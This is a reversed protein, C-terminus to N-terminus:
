YGPTYEVSRPATVDRHKLTGVIITSSCLVIKENELTGRLFLNPQRRGGRNPRRLKGTSNAPRRSTKTARKRLPLKKNESGINKQVGTELKLLFTAEAGGWKLFFRGAPRFDQPQRGLGRQPKAGSGGTEGSRKQPGKGAPREQAHGCGKLGWGVGALPKGWPPDQSPRPTSDEARGAGEVGKREERRRPQVAAPARRAEARPTGRRGMPCKVVGGGGSEDRRGSSRAGARCGEGEVSTCTSRRLREGQAGGGGTLRLRSLRSLGM